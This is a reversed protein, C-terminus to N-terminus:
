DINPSIKTLLLAHMPLSPSLSGPSTAPGPPLAFRHALSLLMGEDWQPFHCLYPGSHPSSQLCLPWELSPLGPLLIQRHLHFCSSACFIASMSDVRKPWKTPHLLPLPGPGPKYHLLSPFASTFCCFSGSCTLQNSLLLRM